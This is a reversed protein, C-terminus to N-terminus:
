KTAKRDLLNLLEENSIFPDSLSPESLPKAKSTETDQSLAPSALAAPQEEQSRSQARLTDLEATLNHNQLELSAIKEKMQKLQANLQDIEEKNKALQANLTTARKEEQALLRQFNLGRVKEAEYQESSVCGASLVASLLFLIKVPLTLNTSFLRPASQCQVGPQSKPMM